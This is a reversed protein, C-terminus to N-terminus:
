YRKYYEESSEEKTNFDGLLLYTMKKSLETIESEIEANNSSISHSLEYTDTFNDLVSNKKNDTSFSLKSSNISFSNSLAYVSVIGILLTGIGIFFKKM